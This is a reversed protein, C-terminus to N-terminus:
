GRGPKVVREFRLLLRHLQEPEVPKVLHLHIGAEQSRRVDEEQGRGTIAVLLPPKAREEPLRRAVEHGDIGDPLGIDLLIVDPQHVRAWALASLGDTEVHVEFKYIALLRSLTEATDRDDEVILVKLRWHPAGNTPQTPATVSSDRDTM